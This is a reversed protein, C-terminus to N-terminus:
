SYRPLWQSIKTRTVAANLGVADSQGTQGYPLPYFRPASQIIVRAVSGVQRADVLSGDMTYQSIITPTRTSLDVLVLRPGEIPMVTGPSASGQAPPPGPSTVASSGIGGPSVAPGGMEYLTPSFLVLAHNGALLLSAPTWGGYQGGSSLDLVGTLRRTQADVVRLMGGSITVIRRGDTKVLDPEDVGPTATNTGSYSGRASAGVQGLGGPGANGQTAGAASPASVGAESGGASAAAGAQSKAGTAQSSEATASSARASTASFASAAVARLNRLADSCSNFHVLAVDAAPPAHSGRGSTPSTTCASLTLATLVLLAGAPLRVAPVQWGLWSRGLLSKDTTNM